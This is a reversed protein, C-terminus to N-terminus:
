GQRRIKRVVPAVLLLGGVTMLCLSGPEPVVTVDFEYSTAAGLQQILFTYNGPGLPPSFGTAGQAVVSPDAMYPAPLLNQGVTNAAAGAGNGTANSGFHAFGAYSTALFPSGVFSSGAQFGTFGQLDSSSYAANVYSTMVAGAPVTLEIFDQSDGASGNVTGIISNLGVTLALPTPAAQNNSIDGSVSENYSAARVGASNAAVLLGLVVGGILGPNRWGM